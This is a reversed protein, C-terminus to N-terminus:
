RLAALLQQALQDGPNLALAMQAHTRAADVRNLRAECYALRSLSDANRPDLRVAESLERAAEEIRGLVLLNLGYQQRAAAVDPALEAGRKFFAHALEPAKQEAAARGLRLWGESGESEPPAVRRAAALAAEIDGTNRLAVAYDLGGNPLSLGSEFGQRLPEIAERPRGTVLLARGLGYAVNAERPDLRHAEELYPLARAPESETMLQLGVGARGAGPRPPHNADLRAAWRDAEDYQKLIVLRQALRLGELWRGDDAHIPKNAFFFLVATAVAPVILAPLNRARLDAIVRDILAGAGVCLPVM